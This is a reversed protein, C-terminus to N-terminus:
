FLRFVGIVKGVIRFDESEHEKVTLPKFAPNEPQLTVARNKKILRKVTADGGLMAVVIDGSDATQQPRVMVLDGDLIGADKMSHGKVKLLFTDQTKALSLDVVMRGMINEEALMPKGGAVMGLIPLTRGLSQTPMQLARAGAGKRVYGKRHLAAVHKEVARTGDIKLDAALERLSPAYGRTELSAQILRLVQAQRETLPEQPFDRYTTM